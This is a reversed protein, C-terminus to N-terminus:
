KSKLRYTMKTGVKVSMIRKQVGKSYLVGRIQTPNLGTDVAIQHVDKRRSAISELVNDVHSTVLSGNSNSSQPIVPGNLSQMLTDIARLGEKHRREVLERLRSEIEDLESM